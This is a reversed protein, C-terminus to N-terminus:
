LSLDYESESESEDIDDFTFPLPQQSRPVSETSHRKQNANSPMPYTQEPQNIGIDLIQEALLHKFEDANIEGLPSQNNLNIVDFITNAPVSIKTGGNIKVMPDSLRDHFTIKYPNNNSGRTIFYIGGPTNTSADSPVSIMSNPIDIRVIDDPNMSRWPEKHQLDYQRALDRINKGSICTASDNKILSYLGSLGSSAFIERTITVTADKDIFIRYDGTPQQIFDKEAIDIHITDINRPTPHAQSMPLSIHLSGDKNLETCEQRIQICYATQTDPPYHWSPTDNNNHISNSM